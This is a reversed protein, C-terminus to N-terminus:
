ENLSIRSLGGNIDYLYLWSNSVGGCKGPNDEKIMYEIVRLDEADNADIIILELDTSSYSTLYVYGNEYVLSSASSMYSSLDIDGLLGLTGSQNEFVAVHPSSDHTANAFIYDGVLDMYYISGYNLYDGAEPQSPTSIDYAQLGENNYYLQGTYVWEKNARIVEKYGTYNITGEVKPAAPSRIDMVDFSGADVLLYAFGNSIDIDIYEGATFSNLTPDDNEFIEFIFLGGDGNIDKVTVYARKGHIEIESSVRSYVPSSFAGLFYSGATQINSGEMRRVHFFFDSHDTTEVSCIFEGQVKLAYTPDSSFTEFASSSSVDPMATSVLRMGNAGMMAYGTFGSQAFDSSGMGEFFKQILLPGSSSGVNYRWVGSNCSVFLEESDMEVIKPAISDAEGSVVTGMLTGTGESFDLEFTFLDAEPNVAYLDQGELLISYPSDQNISFMPTSVSSFTSLDYVDITDQVTGSSSAEHYNIVAAYQGSVSLSKHYVTGLDMSVTEEIGNTDVEHLYYNENGRRALVYLKGNYIGTGLPNFDLNEQFDPFDGDVSPNSPDTIDVRVLKTDDNYSWRYIFLSTGDLISHPHYVSSLGWDSLGAEAPVDLYNLLVPSQSDSIDYVYLGDGVEPDSSDPADNLVYLYSGDVMVDFAGELLITDLWEEAAGSFPSSIGSVPESTESIVGAPVIKYFYGEGSAVTSDIFRNNSSIGALSYSGGLSDSRYIEYREVGDFDIWELSIGGYVGMVTPILEKDTLPIVSVADSFNMAGDTTEAKLQYTYLRGNTLDEIEFPSNVDAYVRGNELEYVTYSSALPIDEWSLVVKENQPDISFGPIAGEDKLLLDFTSTNNGTDMASIRVTLSGSLQTTSFQFSFSSDTGLAISGDSTSGILSTGLVSYEMLIITGRTAGDALVDTVSGTVVVTSSYSSGEEPTTIEIVPPIEDKAKNVIGEDFSVIPNPCSSLLSVIVTLGVIGARLGIKRNLMM